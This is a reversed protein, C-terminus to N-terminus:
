SCQCNDTLKITKSLTPEEISAPVTTSLTYTCKRCYAVVFQNFPERTIAAWSDFVIKFDQLLVMMITITAVFYKHLNMNLLNNQMYLPTSYYYFNSAYHSADADISNARQKWKACCVIAVVLVLLAILSTLGGIVVGVVADHPLPETSSVSILIGIIYFYFM